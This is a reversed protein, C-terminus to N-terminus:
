IKFNALKDRANFYIKTKVVSSQGLLNGMVELAEGRAHRSETVDLYIDMM